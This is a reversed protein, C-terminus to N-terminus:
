SRQAHASDRGANGNTRSRQTKQKSADFDRLRIEGSRSGKAGFHQSLHRHRIALAIIPANAPSENPNRVVNLTVNSFSRGASFIGPEVFAKGGTTIGSGVM